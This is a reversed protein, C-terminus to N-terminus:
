KFLMIHIKVISKWEYKNGYCKFLAALFRKGFPGIYRM